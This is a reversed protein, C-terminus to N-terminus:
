IVKRSFLYFKDLTITLHEIVGLASRASYYKQAYNHSDM